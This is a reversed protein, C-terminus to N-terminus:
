NRNDMQISSLSEDKTRLGHKRQKRSPMDCEKGYMIRGPHIVNLLYLALMMPLSDLCYQYAEHNPITSNFGHAYEALRFGIRMQMLNDAVNCHQGLLLTDSVTILALVIYLTYLLSMVQVKNQGLIKERLLTRHFGIAFVLFILIFVQQVGVGAM